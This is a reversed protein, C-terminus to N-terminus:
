CVHNLKLRKSGRKTRKVRGGITKSKTKEGFNNKVGVGRPRTVWKENKEVM